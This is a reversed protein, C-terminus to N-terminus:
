VLRWPEVSREVVLGGTVYPDTDAWAAVEERTLGKFGIVAGRVPDGFAGAIILRDAARLAQLRQLHADRYPTRRESMDAVYTYLLLFTLEPETM